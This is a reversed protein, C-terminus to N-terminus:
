FSLVVIHWKVGNFCYQGIDQMGINNVHAYLSRQNSDDIEGIGLEFKTKLTMCAGKYIQELIGKGRFDQDICVQALICFRREQLPKGEFYM